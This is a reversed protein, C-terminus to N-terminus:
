TLKVNVSPAVPSSDSLPASTTTSYLGAPKIKRQGPRHTAARHLALDAEALLRELSMGQAEEIVAMKLELDFQTVGLKKLLRKGLERAQAANCRDLHIACETASLRTALDWPRCHALVTNKLGDFQRQATEEGFTHMYDDWHMIRFMLLTCCDSPQGSFGAMHQIVRKKWHASDLWGGLQTSKKPTHQTHHVASSQTTKLARWALWSCVAAAAGASLALWWWVGHPIRSSGFASLEARSQLTRLADQYHGAAQLCKLLEDSQVTVGSKNRYVAILTEISTRLGVAAAQENFHPMYELISLRRDLQNLLAMPSPYGAAALQANALATRADYLWHISQSQVILDSLALATLSQQHEHQRAHNLWLMFLVAALWPLTLLSWLHIKQGSRPLHHTHM